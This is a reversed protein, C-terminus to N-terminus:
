RGRISRVIPKGARLWVKLVNKPIWRAPSALAIFSTLYVPNFASKRSFILRVTDKWNTGGAIERFGTSSLDPMVYVSADTRLTFGKRMARM